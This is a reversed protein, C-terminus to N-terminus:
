VDKLTHTHSAQWDKIANLYKDRKKESLTVTKDDIDWIFSIFPVSSSFPIDKSLEWPIGLMNSINDIDQINYTYTTDDLSHPASQSLDRLESSFDEDFEEIHGDPLPNGGYWIRGKEHHKGGRAQICSHWVQRQNNYEPLCEQPLCFFVHDDVWKSIPDIGSARLIDVNADGIIGYIGGAM